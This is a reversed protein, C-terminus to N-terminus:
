CYLETHKLPKAAFILARISRIGIWRVSDTRVILAHACHCAVIHCLANFVILGYVM